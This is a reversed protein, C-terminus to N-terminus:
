GAQTRSLNPTFLKQGAALLRIAEAVRRARTEPRKAEAIWSIYQAQYSPALKEFYSAAATDQSLAQSLEDPVSPTQRRRPPTDGFAVKALGAETMKGAAIMKESAGAISSRGTQQIRGHRSDSPSGSMTSADSRRTSGVSALAEEVADDYPIRPTGTHKKYYILWVDRAKAHNEELWKRWDDRNTVYLLNLAQSKGAM